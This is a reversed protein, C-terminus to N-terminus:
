EALMTLKDLIKNKKNLKKCRRHLIILFLHCPNYYMFIITRFSNLKLKDTINSDYCCGRDVM